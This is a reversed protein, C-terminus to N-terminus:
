RRQWSRHGPQFGRHRQQKRRQQQRGQAGTRGEAQLASCCPWPDVACGHRSSTSHSCVCRETLVGRREAALLAGPCTMAAPPCSGCCWHTPWPLQRCAWTHAPQGHSCAGGFSATGGRWRWVGVGAAHTSTQWLSPQRRLGCCGTSALLPWRTWLTGARRQLATTAGPQQTCPRARRECRIPRCGLCSLPGKFQCCASEVTAPPLQHSSM